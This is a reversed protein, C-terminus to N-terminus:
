CLVIGAKVSQLENSREGSGGIAGTDLAAPDPRGLMRATISLLHLPCAGARDGLFPARYRGIPIHKGFSASNHDVAMRVDNFIGAASDLAVTDIDVKLAM